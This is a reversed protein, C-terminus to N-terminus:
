GEVQLFFIFVRMRVTAARARRAIVVVAEKALAAQIPTFIPVFPGRGKAGTTM